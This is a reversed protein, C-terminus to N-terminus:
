RPEISVYGGDWVQMTLTSNELLAMGIVSELQTELVTVEVPQGHWYAIGDYASLPASYSDLFTTDRPGMPTLGLQRISVAPLAIYGTFGTDLVCRFSRLNGDADQIEVSVMAELLWSVRGKIM